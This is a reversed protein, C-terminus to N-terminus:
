PGVDTFRGIWPKFITQVEGTPGNRNAALLLTVSQEGIDSRGNPYYILTATDCDQEINGSERLDDLRPKRSAKRNERSFQSLLIIPLSEKLSWQKLAGTINGIEIDRNQFRGSDQKMLQLYDVIVCGPKRGQACEAQYALILDSPHYLGEAITIPLRALNGAAENIRGYFENLRQETETLWRTSYGMESQFLRGAIETQRMELSNWFVATHEAVMRAIQGALASKGEKPNGAIIHLGPGFGDLLTDLGRLGSPVGRTTGHKPPQGLGEVLDALVSALTPPKKTLGDGALKSIEGVMGALTSTLPLDGDKCRAALREALALTRRRQFADGVMRAHAEHNGEYGAELLDPLLAAVAPDLASGLTVHDIPSGADHLRCIARYITAYDHNNFAAPDPLIPRLLALRGPELLIAGITSEEAEPHALTM